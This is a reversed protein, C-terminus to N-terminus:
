FKWGRETFFEILSLCKINYKKCIDPIRNPKTKSEQTIVSCNASLALSVVLPDAHPGIKNADVFAPYNNLIEQLRQLQASDVAKFMKKHKRAWKLLEDNKDGYQKLEKLVERPAIIRGQTILKEINDWLSPFIDRPYIKKLDILASTDICYVYDPFLEM